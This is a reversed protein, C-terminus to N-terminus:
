KFHSIRKGTVSISSDPGTEFPSSWTVLSYTISSMRKGHGNNSWTML